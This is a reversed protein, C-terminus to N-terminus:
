FLPMRCIPLYGYKRLIRKVLVRMRGRAADRHMWDVTLNTKISYVLEQAIVRLAPEGLAERASKNDALATYFAIEYPILGGEEGRQHAARIDKALQILEELVQVTTIADNHYRTIADELRESFLRVQM